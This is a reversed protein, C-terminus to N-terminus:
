AASSLSLSLPICLEELLLATLANPIDGWKLNSARVVRCAAERLSTSVDLDDNNAIITSRMSRTCIVERMENLKIIREHNGGFTPDQGFDTIIFFDYQDFFLAERETYKFVHARESNLASSILSCTREAWVEGFIGICPNDKLTRMQLVYDWM